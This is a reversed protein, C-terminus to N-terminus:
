RTSIKNGFFIANMLLKNTGYWIARFNPNDTFGIVKGQGYTAVITAPSGKIMQLNKDSVYGSMLPNQTYRFPYTHSKKTTELILTGQKFIPLTGQHYGYALPHTRDIDMEFIAGGIVQAGRSNERDAYSIIALTDKPATKFKVEALQLKNVFKLADKWAILTGGDRVWNKIKEQSSANLPGYSGNPLLLVNYRKLNIRDFTESSLMTVPMRYRQDFLHWVEGSESASVGNDVIMAIVPKKVIDFNRSGLDSGDVVQGSEIAFINEHFKSANNALIDRVEDADKIQIGMPLIVTGREFYQGSASTFPKNAVKLILGNKLLAYVLGPAFYPNWDIAYAYTGDGEIKGEPLSFESISNGLINKLNAQDLWASNLNFSLDFDWASVDYFISDQFDTQREFMAKILMSQPQDLPIVISKEKPFDKGHIKLDKKPEYIAIHHRLLVQSFLQTRTADDPTGIILAEIKEKEHIKAAKTYFERQYNLLDERMALSAEITTLSTTFHNKIAFPLSLMGNETEQLHGRSSAQEFLIGIGGHLDPYTSGKGIYYDDYNEKSYYLRMQEDLAKAHYSAIRETIRVNEMPIKPYKRSPVGPQFFFTANSGMEHHDTQVNPLWRHFLELRGISEPHQAMLWDRNLDFWYHNTRGNPWPEDFERSNPDANLNMSKHENVWTSFRQLGDPNLCPDILIICNELVEDIKEGQAATLYYAVLLAANSGSAENGHISYGLRIVAPMEETKLEESLNTDALKLHQTRIEELKEHNKPSTITVNLLPRNEYTKGYVEVSVRPSAQALNYFYYVLKDHTVHWEGVEHDIISKPTPINKNYSVGAPLYDHLNEQALARFSITILIVILLRICKIAKSM